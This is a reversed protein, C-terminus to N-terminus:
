SSLELENPIEYEGNVMEDKESCLISPEFVSGDYNFDVKVSDTNRGAEVNEDFIAKTFENCFQKYDSIVRYCL